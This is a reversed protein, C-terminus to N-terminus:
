YEGTMGPLEGMMGTTKLVVPRRLAKRLAGGGGRGHPLVDGQQHSRHHLLDGRLVSRM